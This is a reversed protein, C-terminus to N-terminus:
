NGYGAASLSVRGGAHREVRGALEMELLIVAVRGPPLGTERVLTDVETPTPGLLGALLAREDDPPDDDMSAAGARFLIGDNRPSQHQALASVSAVADAVSLIMNAGDRILGNTGACRPDLPSGPVAYVERGFENALRATILSGSRDAAEVVMTALSIGAVLRNRRPFDRAQAQWGLPMETLALGDVSLHEFLKANEPPYLRDIGGAMVALTGTALSAEHAATDIGRALGSAVTFGAAGLGNALQRTFTRGAASANRAGVIAVAPRRAIDGRGILTLLPPASDIFRLAPPYDPEGLGVIRAGLRAVGALEREAEARTAVRVTKGGGKRALEPLAELAGRAGGYRNVLMRFTVPGVNESRILRLWDIRQADTLPPLTSVPADAEESM